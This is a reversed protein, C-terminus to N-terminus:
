WYGTGMGLWETPLVVGVCPVASAPPFASSREPASRTSVQSRPLSRPAPSLAAPVPFLFAEVLPLSLLLPQPVGPNATEPVSVAAVVSPPAGALSPLPTGPLHSRSPPNVTSLSLSSTSRRFSIASFCIRDSFDIILSISSDLLSSSLSPSSLDHPISFPFPLFPLTSYHLLTNTQIVRKNSNMM